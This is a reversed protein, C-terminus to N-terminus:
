SILRDTILHEGALARIETRTGLWLGWRRTKSGADVADDIGEQIRLMGQLHEPPCQRAASGSGAKAAERITEGFDAGFRFLKLCESLPCLIAPLASL